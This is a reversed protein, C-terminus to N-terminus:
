DMKKGGIEEFMPFQCGYWDTFKIGYTRALMLEDTLAPEEPLPVTFLNKQFAGLLMLRYKREEGLLRWPTVLNPLAEVAQSLCSDAKEEEGNWRAIYGLRACDTPSASASLTLCSLNRRLVQNALTDAQMWEKVDPHTLLRPMLRIAEVLHPLADQPKGDSCLCKWLGMRYLSNAPYTQVLGELLPRAQESRGALLYAYAQLYIIQVDRPQQRGAEQFEAVARRVEDEHGTRQYCRTYFWGRLVRYPTENGTQEMYAAADALRNAQFAKVAEASLHERRISNYTCVSFAGYFVLVMGAIFCREHRATKRVVDTRQLFALMLCVLLWVLPLNFLNAQTMEKIGVALLTCAIVCTGAKRRHRWLLRCVAVLLLIYLALGFWGKEVLLLVPLNPAISTYTQTSDQNQIRDIVLSYSGNGQGFLPCSGYRFAEWASRTADLRAETSQQQSVTANMRLTIQMEKPFCVGIFVAASLCLLPIRLAARWPRVCLLWALVFVGLALYAGRSFSLCLSVATLFIFASAHRRALCTWGLLVLLVEAWQNTIYGLPHFLFRFSYTDSFGADLVSDRFVFFSCIAVGLALAIPVYSGYFLFKVAERDAFLRRAALYATLCFVSFSADKLAQYPCVGYFCSAVDSVTLLAILWDVASWRRIPLPSVAALLAAVVPLAQQYDDQVRFLWLGMVALLFLVTGKYVSRRYSSSDAAASM